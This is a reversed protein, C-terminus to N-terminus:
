DENYIGGKIVSSYKSNSLLESVTISNSSAVENIYNKVSEIENETLVDIQDSNNYIDNVADMFLEKNKDDFLLDTDSIGNKQAVQKYYSLGNLFTNTDLEDFINTDNDSISEFFSKQLEKEEDKTLKNLKISYKDSLINKLQYVLIDSEDSDTLLSLSNSNDNLIEKLVELKKDYSFSPIVENIYETLIVKGDNIKSLVIEDISIVTGSYAETEKEEVEEKNFLSVHENELSCFDGDHNNLLNVLKNNLYIINDARSLLLDLGDSFLDLDRLVSFNKNISYEIDSQILDTHEGIKSVINSVENSDYFIRDAM